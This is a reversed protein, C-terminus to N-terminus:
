LFPYINVERISFGLWTAPTVESYLRTSNLLEVSATLTALIIVRGSLFVGLFDSAQPDTTPSPPLHIKSTQTLGTNSFTM